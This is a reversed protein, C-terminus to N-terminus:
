KKPEDAVQGVVGPAVWSMSNLDAISMTKGAAVRVVGNRDKIPGTFPDFKGGKEMETDLAMIRDYVSVSKGGVMMKAAKLQPVFKANFPLGNDAGMEVAGKSLLWWYDVNALNKNTYTGNHVKTLFDIYIKDWHVVHGSVVNDPSFKLMPNYHSFTPINKAGATQVGTASDEASTLVDAGESLLAESAERTKAPDFWSNIWKVNVNAKPNAAKVGLAFASLHRKLEPIPFTGVFGVKGSKTLAGAALGNLYYVQYFDAMYTAMNPNRKFGANHAFIIGPYKKAAALTDDMYGFSTTFIVKCGNKALRDIVPLAQGEQVSEVYQTELWPLAKEAAKRGQDHAYSWGIDGTPGVYIFCAKLKADQAGAQTAASAVTLALALTLLKQIKNM